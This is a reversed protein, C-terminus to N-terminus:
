GYERVMEIAKAPCVDACVGCGKCYSLDIVPFGNEGESIVEEPCYLWCLWCKICKSENIIPREVRWLGTEGSSGKRPKSIPLVIPVEFEM